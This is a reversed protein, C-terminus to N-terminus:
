ALNEETLALLLQFTCPVKQRKNLRCGAALTRQVVKLAEGLAHVGQVFASALHLAHKRLTQAAKWASRDPYRWLSTVMGWHQILLGLLKAYVEGLVRWPKDSRSHALHGSSKWLKFVLEIQWRVRAVVLVEPGSLLEPPVNTCFLTWDALRLRTRSVAQGRRRADAHLERRRQNAVEQPVRVAILRAPLRHHVGLRVPRDIVATGQAPLCAALDLVQGREDYVQTGAMLRTLWYAQQQTITQLVELAFYGLDALRLRGAPAPAHQIPSTRDSARGAQLVPGTLGGRKLDLRGQLKLAATQATAQAGGGSGAWVEAWVAPLQVQTSDDVYVATFRQLLPIAVPAATIVQQVAAQLVREVCQAAAETFRQELGQATIKVGLTAATQALEEYTAEPTALWGVVLTQVFKAGSLKSRRQVFRTARAARNAVRTLVTRLAKAVQPISAM